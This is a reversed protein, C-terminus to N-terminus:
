KKNTGALNDAKVQWYGSRASGIRELKNNKQLNAIQKEVARTTLKLAEALQPITM